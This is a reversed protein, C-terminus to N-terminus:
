KGGYKKYSNTVDERGNKNEEVKKKHEVFKRWYVGKFKHTRITSFVEELHHKLIKYTEDEHDEKCDKIAKDLMTRHKSLVEKLEWRSSFETSHMADILAAWESEEEFTECISEKSRCIFKAIETMGILIQYPHQGVKAEDVHQYADMAIVDTDYGMCHRITHKLCQDDLAAQLRKMQEANMQGNHLCELTEDVSQEVMGEVDVDDADGDEDDADEDDEDADEDDSDEGKTEEFAVKSKTGSGIKSGIKVGQLGEIAEM